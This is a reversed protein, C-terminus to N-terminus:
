LWKYCWEVGYQYEKLLKAKYINSITNMDEHAVLWLFQEYM